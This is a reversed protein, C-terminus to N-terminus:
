QQMNDIRVHTGDIRATLAQIARLLQAMSVEDGAESDSMTTAPAPESVLNAHGLNRLPYDHYVPPQSQYSRRAPAMIAAQRRCSLPIDPFESSVPIQFKRLENSASFEHQQAGSISLNSAGLM